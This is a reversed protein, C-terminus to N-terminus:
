QVTGLEDLTKFEYGEKKWEKILSDLIAANTSSEAHLLCIMGPKTNKLLLSKAQVPDPQSNVDYDKYALSFFITKYVLKQTYYLSLESFNGNPPRFYKSVHIGPISAAAEEVGTLEADFEKEDKFGPMLKHHVSHNGIIHGEDVMRKLLDANKVGNFTAGIYPKTIFFAAKVNNAKLTDLISPTYGYEFGEDFTLYIVKKSTDGFAYGQYKALLASCEKPSYAWSWGTNKDSLQTIDSLVIPTFPKPEGGTGQSPKDGEMVGSAEGVVVPSNGSKGSENSAAQGQFYNVSSADATTNEGQTGTSSGSATINSGSSPISRGPSCGAVTFSLLFASTLVVILRKHM